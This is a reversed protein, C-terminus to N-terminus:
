ATVTRAPWPDRGTRQAWGILSDGSTMVQAMYPCGDAHAGKLGDVVVPCDCPMPRLKRRCPCNEAGDCRRANRGGGLRWLTLQRTMNM